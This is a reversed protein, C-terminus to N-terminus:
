RPSFNKWLKRQFAFLADRQENNEFYYFPIKDLDSTMPGFGDGLLGRLFATASRFEEEDRWTVDFSVGSSANYFQMTFQSM